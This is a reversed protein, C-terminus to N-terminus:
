ENYRIAVKSPKAPNNTVVGVIALLILAAQMNINIKRSSAATGQFHLNIKIILFLLKAKFVIILFLQSVPDNSKIIPTQAAAM